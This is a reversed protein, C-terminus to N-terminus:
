IPETIEFYVACAEILALFFCVAGGVYNHHLFGYIGSATYFIGALAMLIAWM